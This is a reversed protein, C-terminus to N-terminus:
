LVSVLELIKWVGFCSLTVLGFFIAWATRSADREAVGERQVVDGEEDIKRAGVEAGVGGKADSM